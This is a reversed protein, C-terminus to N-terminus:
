CANAVQLLISISGDEQSDIVGRVKAAGSNAVV